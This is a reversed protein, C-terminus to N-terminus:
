TCNDLVKLSRLLIVNSWATGYSLRNTARSGVAAAETRDWTLHHPIQPPCLPAPAPKNGSYKPKGQWNENWRSNWVWWRDDPAPVIPWNTASTGLPSLRAGGWSVLFSVTSWDKPLLVFLHNYFDTLLRFAHGSCRYENTNIQMGLFRHWFM